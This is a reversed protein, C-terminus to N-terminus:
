SQVASEEQTNVMAIFQKTASIASSKQRLCSIWAHSSYDDYFVIVYKYWHDSDVLFSKLDSHILEFPKSARRTSPPYTRQHMKGQACGSCPGSSLKGDVPPYELTASPFKRLVKESPHVYCRHALDMTISLYKEFHKSRLRRLGYLYYLSNYEERAMFHFVPQNGRLIVLDNAIGEIRLGDNLLQRLLLILLHHSFPLYHVDKLTYTHLLNDASLEFALDCYGHEDAQTVRNATMVTFAEHKNVNYLLLLNNIFHQSAGSDLFVQDRLNPPIRNIKGKGKCKKCDCVNIGHVCITMNYELIGFSTSIPSNPWTSTQATPSEDTCTLPSSYSPVYKNSGGEGYYGISDLLDDEINSNGLSVAPEGEEDSAEAALQAKVEEAWDIHAELPPTVRACKFSRSSSGQEFEDRHKGKSHHAADVVEELARICEFNRPVRIELLLDMAQQFRPFQGKRKPALLCNGEIRLELPQKPVTLPTPLPPVFTPAAINSHDHHNEQSKGARKGRCKKKGNQGNGSSGSAQQQNFQPDKEKNKVTTIHNANETHRRNSSRLCRQEWLAELTKIYDLPKPHKNAAISTDTTDVMEQSMVLISAQTQAYGPTKNVLLMLYIYENLDVHFNSLREVHAQIKALAPGPSQDEPIRTDLIGKFEVYANALTQRSHGKKLSDWMKKATNKGKILQAVDPSVRLCIYGMVRENDKNWDEQKKTAKDIESQNTIDGDTGTVAVPISPRLTTLVHRCGESMVYADISKAWSLWNTSNLVPIINLLASSM